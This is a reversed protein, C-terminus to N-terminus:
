VAIPKRIIALKDNVLEQALQHQEIFELWAQRSGDFVHDAACDDIVIIGGPALLEWVQSLAHKTPLYLDVDILVFCLHQTYSSLSIKNIDGAISEVQQLGNLTMTYDFWKKNNMAFLCDREVQEVTKGRQQQEFTVDAKTFGHFTDLALYRRKHQIAALHKNLYITTTGVFCGIEIVDGPQQVAEDLVDILTALQRPSYAYQHRPFIFRRFPTAFLLRRLWIRPWLWM